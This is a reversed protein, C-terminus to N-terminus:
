LADLTNDISGFFSLSPLIVEIATDTPLEKLIDDIIEQKAAESAPSDKLM